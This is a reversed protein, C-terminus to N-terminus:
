SIVQATLGLTGLTYTFHVGYAGESLPGIFFRNTYFDGKRPLIIAHGYM